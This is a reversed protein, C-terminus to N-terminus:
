DYSLLEWITKRAEEMFNFTRSIEKQKIRTYVVNKAQKQSLSNTEIEERIIEDTAFILFWKYVTYPNYNHTLLYEYMVKCEENLPQNKQRYHFHACQSLMFHLEKESKHSFLDRFTNQLRLAKKLTNRRRVDLYRQNYLQKEM